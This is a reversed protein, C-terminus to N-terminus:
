LSGDKIIPIMGLEEARKIAATWRIRLTMVQDRAYEPILGHDDLTKLVAHSEAGVRGMEQAVEIPTVLPKM